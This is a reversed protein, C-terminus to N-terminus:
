FNGHDMDSVVATTSVSVPITKNTVMTIRIHNSLIDCECGSAPLSNSGAMFSIISIVVVRVMAALVWGGAM